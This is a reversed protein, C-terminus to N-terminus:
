DGSKGLQRFPGRHRVDAGQRDTPYEYRVDASKTGCGGMGIGVLALVAFFLSDDVQAYDKELPRNFKHLLTLSALQFPFDLQKM